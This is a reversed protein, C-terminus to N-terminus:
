EYNVHFTVNIELLTTNIELLISKPDSQMWTILIIDLHPARLLDYEFYLHNNYRFSPARLDYEYYLHYIIDSHPPELIMNVQPAM